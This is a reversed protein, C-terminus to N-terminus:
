GASVGWLQFMGPNHTLVYANDRLSPALSRAFEEDARAAWASDAVTAVVPAYLWGFQLMAAAALVPMAPFRPQVEGIWEVIVSVGLGAAIALAPYTALSYRVDAGYNYSGAYFVLAIGFFVLFYCAIA